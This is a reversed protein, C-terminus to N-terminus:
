KEMGELFIHTEKIQSFIQKLRNSPKHKDEIKLRVKEQNYIKEKNFDFMTEEDLMKSLSSQLVNAEEKSDNDFYVKSRSLRIANFFTEPILNPKINRFIIENYNHLIGAMSFPNLNSDAGVNETSSSLFHYSGSYEKKDEKKNIVIAKDIKFDVSASEIKDNACQLVHEYPIGFNEQKHKINSSFVLPCNIDKQKLIEKIIPMHKAEVLDINIIHKVKKESNQNYHIVSRLDTGINMIVIDPLTRDYVHYLNETGGNIMICKCNPIKNIEEHLYIPQSSDKTSYNFIAFNM